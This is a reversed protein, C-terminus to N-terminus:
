LEVGTRYGFKKLALQLFVQLSLQKLLNPLFLSSARRLWIAIKPFTITSLVALLFGGVGCVGTAKAMPTRKDSRRIMGFINEDRHPQKGSIDRTAGNGPGNKWEM